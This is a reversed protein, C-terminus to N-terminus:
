ENRLMSMPSVGSARIAPIVCATIAVLGVFGAVPVTTLPDPPGVSIPLSELFPAAIVTTITGVVLGIVTLRVGQGLVLRVVRGRDAGLALRIAFERVRSAAVYSIVGYTGTVALLLALAAFSTMLWLFLTFDALSDDVIRDMTKVSFVALNPDADLVAARVADNLGPSPNDAKVVLTMGLENLQSWNQAIPFYL